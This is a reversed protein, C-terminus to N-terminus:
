WDRRPAPATLTPFLPRTRYGECSPGCLPASAFRVAPRHALCNVLAGGPAHPHEVIDAVMRGRFERTFLPLDEVVLFAGIGQGTSSSIPELRYYRQTKSENFIGEVPIRTTIVRPVDVQPLTHGQLSVSTAAIRGERDYFVLGLINEFRSIGAALKDFYRWPTDDGSIDLTVQLTRSIAAVERQLDAILNARTRTLSWYLDLATVVLVGVLLFWTLRNGLSMHMRDFSWVRKATLDWIERECVEPASVLIRNEERPVTTQDKRKDEAETSILLSALHGNGMCESNERQGSPSTEQQALGHESRVKKRLHRPYVHGREVRQTGHVDHSPCDRHFDPELFFTFKIM